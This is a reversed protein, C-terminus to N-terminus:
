SDKNWTLADGQLQVSWWKTAAQQVGGHNSVQALRALLEASKREVLNCLYRNGLLACTM